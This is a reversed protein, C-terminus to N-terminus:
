FFKICHNDTTPGLNSCVGNFAIGSKFDNATGTNTYVVNIDDSGDSEALYNQDDWIFKKTGASEALKIRLGDPEYAITNRIGSALEVLTTKNEYDWTTTTRDNNPAQVLQQNGDADFTYTTTGSADISTELQNAADYSYTTRAGSENKLLRNGAPDYTFTNRYPVTGTRYDETIQYKADYSWTVRSGDAEAVEIRNSAKDYKYDFKSIVSHDSKLNALTTVNSADDYTFSARTGNALKKVTRRGDADYSYSTREGQPNILSKIRKLSDYSYTTRGGDPDIMLSRNGVADYRYQIRKKSSGM